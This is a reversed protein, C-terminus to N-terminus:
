RQCVGQVDWWATFTVVLVALFGRLMQTLLFMGLLEWYWLFKNRKTFVCM